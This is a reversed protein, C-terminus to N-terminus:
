VVYMENIGWIYRCLMCRMLGGCIGVYCLKCLRCRMLDGVYVQM